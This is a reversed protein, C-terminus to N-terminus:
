KGDNEYKLLVHSKGTFTEELMLNSKVHEGLKLNFGIVLESQESSFM